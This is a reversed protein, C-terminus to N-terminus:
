SLYSPLGVAEFRKQIQDYTFRVFTDYQESLKTNLVNDYEERVHSERETLMRECILGVQGFTFLPNEKSGSSYTTAFNSTAPSGTFGMAGDPSSEQSGHVNQGGYFNLQKRRYLRRIEERINAAMKEATLKPCVEGFPSPHKRPPVDPSM